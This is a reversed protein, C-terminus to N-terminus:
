EASVRVPMIIHLYSDDKPPKFVGPNLAGTMEFLFEDESYNTLFDMLFRSNFAIEGGDGDIKAEIEVSNEGVNPANASLTIKQGELVLKVINANDRAFISAARVARLFQEKEILARTTHTTPIIRQFDPYEGDLLRTILTTDGITFAVDEQTKETKGVQIKQEEKEEAALKLVESLARSPIVAGSFAADDMDLTRTSLRYGDTAAIVTKGEHTQIKIGTLVPRGDDTAASFLVSSFASSFVKADIVTKKGQTEKSFPPFETTQTSPFKATFGGCRVCFEEKEKAMHVTDAPLTSVFEFLIRASVCVEGEKEVKGGVWVTETTEMNTATMEIGDKKASIFVNILVPIQPRSPVVRTIKTLAKILNEKLVTIIM